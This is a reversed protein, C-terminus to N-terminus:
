LLAFIAYKMKKDFKKSRFNYDKMELGEQAEIHLDISRDQRKVIKWQTQTQTDSRDKITNKTM